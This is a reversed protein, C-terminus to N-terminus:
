GTGSICGPTSCCCQGRWGRGPRTGWWIGVFLLGTVVANLLGLAVNKLAHRAREAGAGVFYAFFPTWSEWALLLALLGVSSATKIRSLETILDAMDERERADGSSMWNTQGDGSQRQAAASTPRKGRAARSGRAVRGGAM